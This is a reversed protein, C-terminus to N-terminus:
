SEGGTKRCFIWGNKRYNELFPYTKTLEEVVFFDVNPVCNGKTLGEFLLADLVENKRKSPYFYANDREYLVADLRCVGDPEMPISYFVCFCVELILKGDSLYRYSRDNSPYDSLNSAFAVKGDFLPNDKIMISAHQEQIVDVFHEVSEFIPTIKEDPTPGFLPHEHYFLM